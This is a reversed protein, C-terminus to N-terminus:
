ISICNLPLLNKGHDDPLAHAKGLFSQLAIEAEAEPIGADTALKKSADRVSLPKARKPSDLGDAEVGLTLEVWVTLPDAYFEELTTWGPFGLGIRPALLPRVKEISQLSDTVTELTEGIVNTRPIIKGFLLSAVRAVTEQQDAESGTNSM